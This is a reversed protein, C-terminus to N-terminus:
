EDAQWKSDKKTDDGNIPKSQHSQRINFIALWLMASDVPFDSPFKWFASVVISFLDWIVKRDKSFESFTEGMLPSDLRAVVVDPM